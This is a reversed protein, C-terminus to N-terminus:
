EGPSFGHGVKFGGCELAAFGAQDSDIMRAASAAVRQERWLRRIAIHEEDVKIALDNM